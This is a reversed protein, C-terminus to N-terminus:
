PEVVGTRPQKLWALEVHQMITGGGGAKGDATYFIDNHHMKRLFFATLVVYRNGLIPPLDVVLHIIGHRM